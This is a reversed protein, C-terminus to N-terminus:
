ESGGGGETNPVYRAAALRAVEQVEDGNQLCAVFTVDYLIGAGYETATIEVEIYQPTEDPSFTLFREDYYYRQGSQLGAPDAKFLEARDQMVIMANSQRSVAKNQVFVEAFLQVVVTLAIAMFCIIVILEILAPSRRAHNKM